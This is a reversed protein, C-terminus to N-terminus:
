AERDRLRRLPPFYGYVAEELKKRDSGPRPVNADLNEAVTLNEFVKSREPVLVIGRATVDYPARNQIPEGRHLIRGEAVRAGDLGLFGSVARLTTTKGAGNAGLLAVIQGPRVELDIGQVATVVHHYVVGVGELKLLAEAM